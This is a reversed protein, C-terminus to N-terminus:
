TTSPETSEPKSPTPSDIDHRLGSVTFTTPTAEDDSLSCLISIFEGMGKLNESTPNRALMEAKAFTLCKQFMDTAVFSHLYACLEKDRLFLEKASTM